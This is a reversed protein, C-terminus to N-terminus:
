IQALVIAQNVLFFVRSVSGLQYGGGVGGILPVDVLEAITASGRVLSFWECSALAVAQQLYSM